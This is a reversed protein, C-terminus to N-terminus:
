ILIIKSWFCGTLRSFSLWHNLYGKVNALFIFDEDWECMHTFVKLRSVSHCTVDTCRPSLQRGVTRRPFFRIRAYSGHWLLLNHKFCFCLWLLHSRMKEVSLRLVDRLTDSETSCGEVAAAVAGRDEPEERRPPKVSKHHLTIPIISRGPARRHNRRLVLSRLLSLSFDSASLRLQADSRHLPWTTTPVLGKLAQLM